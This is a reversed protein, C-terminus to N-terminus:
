PKEVSGAANLADMGAMAGSEMPAQELDQSRQRILPSPIWRLRGAAAGIGQRIFADSGRTFENM